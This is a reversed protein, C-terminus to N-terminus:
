NYIIYKIVATKIQTCNLKFGSLYAFHLNSNIFYNFYYKRLIFSMAFLAAVYSFTSQLIENLKYKKSKM